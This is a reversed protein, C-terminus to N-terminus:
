CAQAPRRSDLGQELPRLKLPAGARSRGRDGPDVMGPRAADRCLGAVSFRAAASLRVVAQRDTERELREAFERKARALAEKDTMLDLITGAITKAACAVTPDITAPIGGLANMAWDPYAFARRRRSPPAGSM